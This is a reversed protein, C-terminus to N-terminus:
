EREGQLGESRAELWQDGGWHEGLQLGKRRALAREGGWQGGQLEEGGAEM